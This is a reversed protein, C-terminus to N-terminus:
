PVQSGLEHPTMEGRFRTIREIYSGRGGITVYNSTLVGVDVPTVASWFWSKSADSYVYIQNSGDVARTWLAKM